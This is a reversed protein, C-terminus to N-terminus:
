LCTDSLYTQIVAFTLLGVTDQKHAYALSEVNLLAEQLIVFESDQNLRSDSMIAFQGYCDSVGYFVM